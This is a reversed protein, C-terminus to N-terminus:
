SSEPPQPAGTPTVQHAEYDARGQAVAWAAANVADSQLWHGHEDAPVTVTAVITVQVEVTNTIIQEVQPRIM